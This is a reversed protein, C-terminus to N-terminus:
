PEAIDYPTLSGVRKLTSAIRLLNRKMHGSPKSSASCLDFAEPQIIAPCIYSVFIFNSVGAMQQSATAKPFRDKASDYVQRIHAPRVGLHPSPARAAAHPRAHSRAHPRLACQM